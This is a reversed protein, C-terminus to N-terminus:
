SPFSCSGLRFCRESEGARAKKAEGGEEEEAKRKRGGEEAVPAPVDVDMGQASPEQYGVAAEEYQAKKAAAVADQSLHLPFSNLETEDRRTPRALLVIFM